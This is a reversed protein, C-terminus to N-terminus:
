TRNRYKRNEWWTRLRGVNREAEVVLEENVEDPNPVGGQCGGNCWVIHLARLQKNRYEGAEKQNRLEWQLKKIKASLVKIVDPDPPAFWAYKLARLERIAADRAEVLEAPTQARLIRNQRKLEKNHKALVGVHEVIHQIKNYGLWYIDQLLGNKQLLEFLGAEHHRLAEDADEWQKRFKQYGLEATEVQHRLKGIEEKLAKNEEELTM